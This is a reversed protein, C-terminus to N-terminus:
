NLSFGPLTGPQGSPLPTSCSPNAQWTEEKVLMFEEKVIMFLGRVQWHTTAAGIAGRASRAIRKGCHKCQEGLPQETSCYGCVMRQAWKMEHGDTQEEHCLDCAFRRGCCPFRLWRVADDLLDTLTEAHRSSLPCACLTM